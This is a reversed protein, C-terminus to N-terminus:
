MLGTMFANFRREAQKIHDSIDNHAKHWDAQWAGMTQLEMNSTATVYNKQSIALEIELLSKRALLLNRALMLNAEMLKEEQDM